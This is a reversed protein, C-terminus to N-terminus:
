SPHGLDAERAASRPLGVGWPVPQSSLFRAYRMRAAFRRALFNVVQQDVSPPEVTRGNGTALPAIDHELDAAALSTDGVSHTSSAFDENPASEEEPIPM